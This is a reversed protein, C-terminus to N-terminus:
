VAKNFDIKQFVYEEIFEIKEKSLKNFKASIKHVPYSLGNTATPKVELCSLVILNVDIEEDAVKIQVNDFKDAEKFFKKDAKSIYFSLGGGSLDILQKKFFQQKQNLLNFKKLLKIESREGDSYEYRMSKRRDVQAIMSPFELILDGTELDRSKIKSQFLVLDKPFFINFSELSIHLQKFMTEDEKSKVRLIFENRFSRIVRIYLEVTQKKGDIIRWGMVKKQESKTSSIISAISDKSQIKSLKNNM